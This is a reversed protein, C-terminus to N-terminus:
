KAGKFLQKLKRKRDKGQGIAQTVATITNDVNRQKAISKQPLPAECKFIWDIDNFCLGCRRCRYGMADVLDGNPSLARSARSPTAYVTQSGCSPCHPKTTSRTCHCTTMEDKNEGAEIASSIYLKRAESLYM